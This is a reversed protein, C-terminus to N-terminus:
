KLVNSKIGLDKATPNDKAVGLPDKTVQLLTLNTRDLPTWTVSM